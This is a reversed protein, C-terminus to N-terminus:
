GASIGFARFIARQAKTPASVVPGYRNSFSTKRYTGLRLMMEALSYHRLLRDRKPIDMRGEWASDMVVRIRATLILSLFQVFIRGRMTDPGRARVRSMALDNKMDDFQSEVLARERYAELAAKADKECDSLIVWYGAQDSKYTNIAEQNRTVKIGRKPTTKVTFYREYAWKNKEQTEGSLLEGEWRRLAAFLSGIHETRRAGDFYLRKWVRRGDIKDLVTMGYLAQREDETFSIVHEPTEVDDRYKDILERQWGVTTPVPIYFGIRADLMLSINLALYFGRDLLIRIREAGYKKMRTIFSAVTKTDSMSGPHIEYYTPVRSTVGTLLAMNIRALDEKDRNYGSEVFPNSMNHSSVSTLDYCYQESLGKRRHQTWERLFNEIQSQSVSGLIRSIEPSSPFENHVPCDNQELWVSALYMQGFGAAVAWSLSLLADAERSEFCRRLVRELGTDRTAKALVLSQGILLSEAMTEGKELAERAEPTKFRHNYIIEGNADLKGVCVQRSSSRKKEKDWYSDQRYVYTSGNPKRHRCVGQRLDRWLNAM